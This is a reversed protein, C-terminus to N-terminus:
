QQVEVKFRATDDKGAASIRVDFDWVGIMSFFEAKAQYRGPAIAQATQEPSAMGMTEMVPALVVQDATVPQGSLDDVDITATHADFNAGDLTLQVKYRETQVTQTIGSGGCAALTLLLILSL